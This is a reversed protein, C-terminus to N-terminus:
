GGGNTASHEKIKELLLLADRQRYRGGCSNSASLTVDRLFGSVNTMFWELVNKHDFLADVFGDMWLINEVYEKSYSQKVPNGALASAFNSLHYPNYPEYYDREITSALFLAKRKVSLGFLMIVHETTAENTNNDAGEPEDAESVEDQNTSEENGHGADEDQNTSEDNGRETDEGQRVSEESGGVSDRLVSVSVHDIDMAESGNGFASPGDDQNLAEELNATMITKLHQDFSVRLTGKLVHPRTDFLSFVIQAIPEWSVDDLRKGRFKSVFTSRTLVRLFHAQDPQRRFSLKVSELKNHEAEMMDSENKLSNRQNASLQITADINRLKEAYIQKGLAAWTCYISIKALEMRNSDRAKKAIKKAHELHQKIDNSEGGTSIVTIAEYTLESLYTLTRAQENPTAQRTIEQFLEDESKGAFPLLIKHCWSLDVDKFRIVIDRTIETDEAVSLLFCQLEDM